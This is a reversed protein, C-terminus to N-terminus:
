SGDALAPIAVRAAGDVAAGHRRAWVELGYYDEVAGNHVVLYGSFIPDQLQPPRAFQVVLTGGGPIVPLEVAEEKGQVPLRLLRRAFGAAEVTLMVEAAAAPLRLEFTGDVGSMAM